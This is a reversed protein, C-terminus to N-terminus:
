ARRRERKPRLDTGLIIGDSVFVVYGGFFDKLLRNLTEAPSSWREEPPIAKLQELASAQQAVQKRRQNLTYEHQKLEIELQELRQEANALLKKYREMGKDGAEASQLALNDYLRQQRKIEATLTEIASQPPLVENRGFIQDHTEGLFARELVRDVFKQVKAERFHRTNDCDDPTIYGTFEYHTVCHLYFYYRNRGTRVRAYHMQRHCKPCFVLGTLSHIQKAQRIGRIGKKHQIVSKVDIGRQGQFAPPHTNRHMEVGDPVPASEDFGWGKQFMSLKHKKFKRATHGWFSPRHLMEYLSTKDWPKGDHPNTHGYRDYLDRGLFTLPTNEMLLTYLHDLFLHNAPDLEMYLAKGDKPDRVVRYPFPVRTLNLGKQARATMGSDNQVIRREREQIGAFGGLAIQGGYDDRNIWGGVHRYISAGSRIVNEIVWSQLTFSRGLRSHNHCWLVDFGKQRWLDRLEHYEFRGAAAFDDLAQMIDSEDRSHGDWRFIKVVEYNGTKGFAAGLLEQDKLSYKDKVDPDTKKAKDSKSVSTWIALRLKDPKM